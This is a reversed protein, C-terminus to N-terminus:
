KIFEISWGTKVFREALDKLKKYQAPSLSSKYNKSITDFAQSLEGPNFDTKKYTNEIVRAMKILNEARIQVAKEEGKFHLKVSNIGSINIKEIDTQIQSKKAVKKEKVVTEQEVRNIDEKKNDNAEPFLNSPNFESNLNNGYKRTYMTSIAIMLIGVVMLAVVRSITDDVGVWIDHFFIKAATISVLYLGLTRMRMIDQSIGYWLLASALVWWYLTVSFTTPFYYYVYLTTLSFLYFLFVIFLKDSHIDKHKLYEYLFPVSYIGAIITSILINMDPTFIGVQTSVLFLFLHISLFSIYVFYSFIKLAIAHLYSYFITLSIVIISYYLLSYWVDLGSNTFLIAHILVVITGMWIVHFFNHIGTIEEWFLKKSEKNWYMLLLNYVMSATAILLAPIMGYEQAMDLNTFPSLRLVWIIFLILGWLALKLQNTKSFIFFLINAELLWVISIIEPHNAFVFVIALSFLSLSISAIMYFLNQLQSDKKMVKFWIKQVLVFSVLGYIMALGIYAVWQGMGPFYTNGYSYIMATLFLVGLILGSTLNPLNSHERLNPRVFVAWINLFAFVLISAVSAFTHVEVWPILIAPTLITITALSSISYLYSGKSSFFYAFAMLVLSSTSLLSYQYVTLHQDVAIIGLIGILFFSGWILYESILQYQDKFVTSVYLSLVALTNVCLLKTIWGNWELTYPAILILFSAFLFSWIFLVIDKRTYSMFLAGLTVIMTYGLLTYPETATGGVLLPNMYAFIFSFVLLTRSKYVLSTVIAFLTNLILFIFTIWVSLLDWTESNGDLLFRGSLIVLYNILIATGIVIRGENNYWKKDLWVGIGYAGFGIIFGIVIKGVPWILSYVAPGILALFFLVWLFVLIGWLKALINESFFREFANLERPIEVTEKKEVIHDQKSAYLPTELELTESQQKIVAQKDEKEEEKLVIVPAQISVEKETEVEQTQHTNIINKAWLKSVFFRVRQKIFRDSIWLSKIIAAFFLTGFVLPFFEIDQSIVWLSITIAFGWLLSLMWAIRTFLQFM